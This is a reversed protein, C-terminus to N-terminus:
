ELIMESIINKIDDLHKQAVKGMKSTLRRADCLKLQSLMACQEKDKFTIKHYYHKEKIQTTLPVGWFIHKNFKRMILIPRSHVKGKGNEEDGVNSGLHCWWVEGQKFRPINSKIDLKQKLTNWSDFDKEM